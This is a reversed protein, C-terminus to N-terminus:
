EVDVVEAPDIIGGDDAVDEGVGYRFNGKFMEFDRPMLVGKFVDVRDIFLAILLSVGATMGFVFMVQWWWGLRDTGSFFYGNLRFMLQNVFPHVLYIMLSLRGISGLLKVGRLVRSVVLVSMFGSLMLGDHLLLYGLSRVDGFRLSGIMFLTDYKRSLYALGVFVFIMLFDYGGSSIGYLWRLVLGLFVMHLAIALGMPLHRMWQEGLLGVLVHTGLFLWFFIRRKADNLGGWINVCIVLSLLAPLFWYSGFGCADHVLSGSSILYGWFVSILWDGLGVDGARVFVFFYVASSAFFFISYPVLYRVARDRLFSFSVRRLSFVFPLLLFSTVHFSYLLRWAGSCNNGFIINHGLLILLILIGKFVDVVDRTYVLPLSSKFRHSM